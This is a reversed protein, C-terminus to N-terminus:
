RERGGERERGGDSEDERGRFPTSLTGPDPVQTDVHIGFRGDDEDWRCCARRDQGPGRRM